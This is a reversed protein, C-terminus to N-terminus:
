KQNLLPLTTTNEGDTLQVFYTGNAKNSIDLTVIQQGNTQKEIIIRGTVDLVRVVANSENNALKINFIGNAPNPYIVFNLQNTEFGLQSSVEIGNITYTCGNADTVTVSYTGSVLNTPDEVTSSYSNPGTWSYSYPATGGTVTLNISGDNGSIEDNTTYTGSIATPEGVTASVSGTCGNADQVTILHTGTALNTFVNNSQPGAGINYTYPGTGNTPTVDISGDAGDACSVDTVVTTSTIGAGTSITVNSETFQCGNADEVVVCYNGTPVATFVNSAQFSTGCDTSYLYATTGGSANVTISADNSGPCAEDQATVTATLATPGGLTVDITNTCANNDVVTITYIGPTLNNFTGTGQAGSGIDYTFPADGGTVNVTISGTNDGSCAEETTSSSLTGSCPTVVCFNNTESSGFDSNAAVISALTDSTNDQTIMYDGDVTCSSWQSGNMGDGFSDYIIFDYCGPDLCLNEIIQEGGSVDSYPGGSALVTANIDVIEWTTESGWCDTNLEVTVPQGNVIAFYNSSSADNGTNSDTTGNPSTTSANFTHAGATTTMNPLTVDVSAGAALNGTWALTNNTGGDIDFNITVSTLANTGYNRLTVIPDFSSSCFTGVPDVIAMIGADDPMSPANPDYGDNTTTSGCSGPALYTSLGLGWSVGIRGYYDPQNNDTTGSCAAGGGFLQGIIRGNQDFLPSGSSGPETVGQDWNAIQWCAAGNWPTQTLANAEQCIKKVDGSPHHIGTGTTVTNADSNDWGAYFLNWNQADTLTMNDINLLAFDSGGNNTLVTAGNATQDYPPGPDTSGATTACSETGPPSEWNFRFAWSGTNGGLCHNATLFYPTGDDCTNNILAGTCIGSGSVVIMAVSRIQDGWSAGLPCNVDINCDGSSNLAKQLLDNQITKLSRYGHVVDTITFSGQGSVEAPEFYEVIIEEGIILETGLLGDNRNNRSTYAGVRNTQDKDYLYLYAGKPLNFNELLLNVTLANPCKIGLQWVRDGNPLTTWHGSSNLDYSVAYKYGFRWPQDKFQDNVVDEADIAVQDYGPMIQVPVNKSDLKGKWAIPGGMDTVQAFSNVLFGLIAVMSYIKKM